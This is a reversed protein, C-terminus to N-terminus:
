AGDPFTHCTVHRFPSEVAAIVSSSVVSLVQGAIGKVRIRGRRPDLSAGSNRSKTSVGSAAKSIRWEEKSVGTQELVRGLLDGSIDGQAPQPYTTHCRRSGHLRSM